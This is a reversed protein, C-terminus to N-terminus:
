KGRYDGPAAVEEWQHNVCILFQVANNVKLRPLFLLNQWWTQSVLACCLEKLYLDSIALLPVSSTISCTHSHTHHPCPWVPSTLLRDAKIHCMLTVQWHWYSQVLLVHEYNNSGMVNAGDYFILRRSTSPVASYTWLGVHTNNKWCSHRLVRTLNKVTEFVKNSVWSGPQFCTGSELGISWLEPGTLM